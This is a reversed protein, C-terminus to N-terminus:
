PLQTPGTQIKRGDHTFRYRVTPIYPMSPRQVKGLECGTLRPMMTGLKSNWAHAKNKRETGCTTADSSLDRIKTSVSM